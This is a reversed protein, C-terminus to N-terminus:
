VDPRLNGTPRPPRDSIALPGPYSPTLNETERRVGRTMESPVPEPASHELVSRVDLVLNFALAAVGRPWTGEYRADEDKRQSAYM